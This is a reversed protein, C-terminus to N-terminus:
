GRRRPAGTPGAKRRPASASAAPAVEGDAAEPIDLEVEAGAAVEAPAPAAVAAAPRRRAAQQPAPGRRPPAGRGPAERRPKGRAAKPKPNGNEDLEVFEDDGSVTLAPASSRGELIADAIGGAYLQIARMADDNGPVLYDVGDPACNTDVIAVVPIGLKNAEHIAIKEHGVDVVFIADPLSEMDKIGGLSRELKDMERRLMTGEKKGRRDLSGNAKMETLDALRKISQRVTKFNTLMGGLWRQNVFPMGARVAEKQIPERASRKTGVFLVTGGDAAVGQIFRAAEAFLPQTKELNIIHIKNREGFIYEAM